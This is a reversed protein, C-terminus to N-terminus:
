GRDPEAGFFVSLEVHRRLTVRGAPNRGAAPGKGEYRDGLLLHNPDYRRVADHTVKYYRETMRALEDRGEASELRTPDFWPGTPNNPRTHVWTPCDCYFYGILNPDEAMQACHERAVTDCWQEFDESFVDPLRTEGEWQHAETFPLLHCYPMDAWQYAEHTWARSHRHITQTRIIVEQAWGITNFGWSTLDPTVREKIWREESRDYRDKWLSGNEPYRLTASDIHTMGISWFPKGDPSMIWWRDDSEKVTFYESM